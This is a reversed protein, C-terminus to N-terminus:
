VTTADDHNTTKYLNGDLLLFHRQTYKHIIKIQKPAMDNSM